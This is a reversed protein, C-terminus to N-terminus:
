TGRVWYQGDKYAVIDGTQIWGDDNKIDKEEMASFYRYKFFIIPSILIHLARPCGNSNSNTFNGIKSSQKHSLTSM